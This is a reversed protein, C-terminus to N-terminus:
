SPNVNRLATVSKGGIENGSSDYLYIQVTFDDLSSDEFDYGTDAILFRGMQTTYEADTIEHGDTTSKGSALGPLTFEAYSDDCTGTTRQNLCRTGAKNKVYLKVLFRDVNDSLGNTITYQIGSVKVTGSASKQYEVDTLQAELKGSLTPAPQSTCKGSVCYGGACDTGAACAKGAACTGCSGGCDVDTEDQNKLGDSCSATPTEEVPEPDDAVPAPAATETGTSGTRDEPIGTGDDNLYSLVLLVGLALIVIWYVLREVYIPKLTITIRTEDM